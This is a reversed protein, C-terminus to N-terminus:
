KSAGSSGTRKPVPVMWRGSLKWLLWIGGIVPIATAAIVAVGAVIVASLHSLWVKRTPVPLAIVFPSCRTRVEGFVFFITATLWVISLVLLPDTSDRHKWVHFTIVNILFAAALVSFTLWKPLSRFAPNQRILTRM